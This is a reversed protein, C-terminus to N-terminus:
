RGERALACTASGAVVLLMGAISVSNLREPAVMNPAFRVVIWMGVVTFLPSTSLIAGIRSVEWHKLSEAFSGYAALTNICCFALMALQLPSLHQVRDPATWPLLVVIAGLYLLWLIQQPTLWLLLRKQALGYIGWVLGGIVLLFVGFGLGNSPHVLEPLRRNFFLGLGTLLIAFGMWQLRSFREGFVILGGFLLFMPGLQTVTQAITPSTHSLAVLYLVYNGVLGGLAIVLLGWATANFSARRPLGGTAGLILGLLLSSVGFRYWTITFPDLGQLVVALAIPLVGWLVAAVLALSPGALGRKSSLNLASSAPRRKM